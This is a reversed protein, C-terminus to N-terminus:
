AKLTMKISIDEHHSSIDLNKIDYIGDFEAVKKVDDVKNDFINGTVLCDVLQKIQLDKANQLFMIISNQHIAAEGHYMLTPHVTVRAAKCGKSLDIPPLKSQQSSSKRM